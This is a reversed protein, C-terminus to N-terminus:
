PAPAAKQWLDEYTVRVAAFADTIQTITTATRTGGDKFSAGSSYCATGDIIIYRDHFDKSSRVEIKSGTQTAYMTTASVLGAFNHRGLLRVSVGAGVHPLYRQVFNADLYPDVFLIDTRATEIIQRLEDFYDFVMGQGIATNVPGLTSLRLDSRAQHLLSILATQGRYSTVAKNDWFQDVLGRAVLKYAPDWRGILVCARGIWAENEPTPHRITAKPPM